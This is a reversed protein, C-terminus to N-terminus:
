ARVSAYSVADVLTGASLELGGVDIRGDAILQLFATAAAPDFQRGINTEIEHVVARLSLASRYSRTSTMADFADAVHVIRAEIPVNEGALGYPYGTGDHNEHHLEVVNLLREFRGVKGLIKRGILPHLKILGFEEATLKGPKGLVADPIGIKGIDHLQAAIRINDAVEKSLGMALALAHSYEAVRLSHGATYPDRADLAQAMTEVFQLYALDLDDRSRVISSAARNLTAAVQNVDSLTSNVPFNPLFSGTRESALVAIKLGRWSAVRLRSVGLSLVVSFILVCAAALLPSANLIGMAKGVALALAITTSILVFTRGALNLHLMMAEVRIRM